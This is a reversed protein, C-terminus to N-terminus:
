KDEIVSFRKPDPKSLHEPVKIKSDSNEASTVASALMSFAVSAEGVERCVLKESDWACTGIGIKAFTSVGAQQGGEKFAMLYSLGFVLAQKTKVANEFQKSNLPAVGPHGPAVVDCLPLGNGVLMVGQPDTPTGREVLNIGLVPGTGSMFMMKAFYIHGLKMDKILM